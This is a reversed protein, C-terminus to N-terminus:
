GGEGITSVSEDIFTIDEANDWKRSMKTYKVEITQGDITLRKTFVKGSPINGGRKIHKTIDCGRAIVESLIKLEWQVDSLATHDEKFQPNDTLYATVGEVSTQIFRKTETFLEHAKCYAIYDPTECIYQYAYGWIDYIPLTGLPNIIGYQIATKTFKDTDFQCNYAYGAEVNYKAIDNAMISFIKQITHCKTGGWKINDEYMTYKEAGVFMDNLMLMKNKILDSVIYDKACCIKRVEGSQENIDVIAYGVNLLTQTNCGVTETDFVIIKLKKGRKRGYPIAM